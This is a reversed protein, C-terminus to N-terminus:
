GDLARLAEWCCFARSVGGDKSKEEAGKTGRDDGSAADRADKSDVVGLSGINYGRRTRLPTGAYFRLHPSNVVYDREMFRPDLM